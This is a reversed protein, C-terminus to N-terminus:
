VYVPHERESFHLYREIVRSYIVTHYFKASDAHRHCIPNVLHMHILCSRFDTQFSVSSGKDKGLIVETSECLIPLLKM